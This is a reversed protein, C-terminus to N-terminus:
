LLNSTHCAETGTRRSGISHAPYFKADFSAAHRVLNATDLSRQPRNLRIVCATSSGPLRTGAHAAALAGRATLMDAVQVLFMMNGLAQM